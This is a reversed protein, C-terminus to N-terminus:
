EAEAEAVVVEPEPAVEEKVDPPAEESPVEVAAEKVEEEAADAM